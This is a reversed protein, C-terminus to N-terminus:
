DIRLKSFNIASSVKDFLIIVFKTAKNRDTIQKNTQMCTYM